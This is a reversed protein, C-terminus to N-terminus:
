LDGLARLRAEARALAEKARLVDVDTGARGLRELARQRAEEARQRNIHEPREATDALVVTETANVELFGGSLAYRVADGEATTIRLVCPRVATILSMHHALVGLDGESGRLIIETVRGEYVTDEPTVVKLAYDAM